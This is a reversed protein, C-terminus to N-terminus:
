IHILEISSFQMQLVTSLAYHSNTIYLISLAHTYKIYILTYEIRQKIKKQKKLEDYSVRTLLEHRRHSTMPSAPLLGRRRHTTM